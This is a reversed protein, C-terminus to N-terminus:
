IMNSKQVSPHYQTVFPLIEKQSENKKQPASERETFKIDSLFTEILNNPYGRAHYDGECGSPASDRLAGRGV